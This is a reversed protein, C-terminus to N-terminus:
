LRHNDGAPPPGGAEQTRQCELPCHPQSRLQSQDPPIRLGIKQYPHPQHAVPHTLHSAQAKTPTQIAARGAWASFVWGEKKEKCGPLSLRVRLREGQQSAQPGHCSGQQCQTEAAHSGSPSGLAATQGAQGGLARFGM